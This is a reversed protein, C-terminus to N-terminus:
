GDNSRLLISPLESFGFSCWIQLFFIYFKLGGSLDVSTNFRGARGPFPFPKGKKTAIFGEFM